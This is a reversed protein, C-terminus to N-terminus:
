PYLEPRGQATQFKQNSAYCETCFWKGSVPNYTMDKNIDQCVPCFAISANFAYSLDNEQSSLRQYKKHLKKYNLHSRNWFGETEQLKREKDLIERLKESKVLQLLRRLEYRVKKLCPDKIIITRKKKM